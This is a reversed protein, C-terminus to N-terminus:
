PEISQRTLKDAPPVTHPRSRIKVKTQFYDIRAVYSVLAYFLMNGPEVPSLNQHMILIPHSAGMGENKPFPYVIMVMTM